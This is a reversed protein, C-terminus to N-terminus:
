TFPLRYRQLLQVTNCACHVLASDEPNESEFPLASASFLHLPFVFCRIIECKRLLVEALFQQLQITYTLIIALRLYSTKKFCPTPRHGVHHGGESYLHRCGNFIVLLLLETIGNRTCRRLTQSVEVARTGHLLAALIPSCLIQVCLSNQVQCFETLPCFGGVVFFLIYHVLRPCPWVDHLTQNVETSRRAAWSNLM